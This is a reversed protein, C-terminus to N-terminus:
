FPVDAPPCTYDGNVNVAGQSVVKGDGGVFTTSVLSLVFAGRSGTTISALDEEYLVKGARDRLVAKGPVVTVTTVAGLASRAPTGPGGAPLDFRVFRGTPSAGCVVATVTASPYFPPQNVGGSVGIASLDSAAATTPPATPATTSPLTTAAAARSPSATRSCGALLAVGALAALTTRPSLM